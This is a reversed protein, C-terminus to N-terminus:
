RKHNEEFKIEMKSQNLNGEQAILWLYTYLAIIPFLWFPYYLINNFQSSFIVIVLVYSNLYWLILRWQSQLPETLIRLTNYLKVFFWAICALLLFSGVIGFNILTAQPSSDVSSLGGRLKEAYVALYNYGLGVIPSIAFLEQGIEFSRLRVQASEDPQIIREVARGIPEIYVPSLAVLTLLFIPLIASFRRSFTRKNILHICVRLGVLFLVAFLTAIGSRSSSLLISLTIILGVFVYRLQRSYHYALLSSFVGICALASYFNPDFYSSLLRRQHPDGNFRIGYRGLLGWLQVSDPFFVYIAFGLFALLLYLFSFLQLVKVFSSGYVKFLSYGFVYGATILLILRLAYSLPVIQLGEQLMGVVFSLLIISATVGLSMILRVMLKVQSLVVFFTLLYLLFETILLNDRFGPLSVFRPINGIVLYFSAFFIFGSYRVTSLSVRPQQKDKNTAHSSFVTVVAAGVRSVARKIDAAL